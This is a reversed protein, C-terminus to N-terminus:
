PRKETAKLVNVIGEQLEPECKGLRTYVETRGAGGAQVGAVEGAAEIVTRRIQCNDAHIAETPSPITTACGPLLALVSLAPFPRM